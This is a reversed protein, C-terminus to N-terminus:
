AEEVVLETISGYQPFPPIEGTIRILKAAFYNQMVSRASQPDPSPLSVQGRVCILGSGPAPALSNFM